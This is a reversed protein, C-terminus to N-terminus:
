KIVPLGNVEITQTPFAIDIEEKRFKELIALNIKEKIDLSEVYNSSNVYFVIEFILSFDGFKKFHVRKDGTKQEAQIIKKVLEPIKKLKEIPTHYVVGLNITFRRKQMVGFNRVQANTMETNSIVLEEGQPVEIRTTKIGIYKVRGSQNGVVIFDGVRFPKDFYIVLSNFLDSLINQAALAIAMGGIGLGAVLSTVNYGMNALILVVSSIWLIIKVINKLFKIVGIDEQNEQSNNIITQAGLDILSSLFKISYFVICILFIYFSWNQLLEYVKLFKLAFYFSVIVYFPWHIKEIAEIIIDDIKNRTKEAVKKIYLIVMQRFLKLTIITVVFVFGAIMWNIITNNFIINQM